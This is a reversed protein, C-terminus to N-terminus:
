GMITITNVRICGVRARKRKEGGIDVLSSTILDIRRGFIHINPHALTPDWLVGVAVVAVAVAGVAVGRVVVAAAAVAVAAQLQTGLRRWSTRRPAVM